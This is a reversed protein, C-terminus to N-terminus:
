CRIKIKKKVPAPKPASHSALPKTVAPAGPKPASALPKPAPAIPKTVTTAAPKPALASLKLAPATPKTASPASPQFAPMSHIPTPNFILRYSAMSLTCPLENLCESAEAVRQSSFFTVSEYQRQDSLLETQSTFNCALSELAAAVTQLPTRPYFMIKEYDRLAILNGDLNMSADTIEFANMSLKSVASIFVAKFSGAALNAHEQVSIKGLRQLDYRSPFKTLIYIDGPRGGQQDGTHDECYLSYTFLICNCRRFNLFIFLHQSEHM